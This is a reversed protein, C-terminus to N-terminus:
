MDATIQTRAPKASRLVALPSIRRREGGLIDVRHRWSDAGGRGKELAPYEFAGSPRSETPSQSRTLERCAYRPFIAWSSTALHNQIELFIIDNASVYLEGTQFNESSGILRVQLGVTGASGVFDMPIKLVRQSQSTVDGIRIRTGLRTAYIVADRWNNNTM